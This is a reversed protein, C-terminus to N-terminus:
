ADEDPVREITSVIPGIWIGQPTPYMQLHDMKEVLAPDDLLGKIKCKLCTREAEEAALPAAMGVIAILLVVLTFSKRKM